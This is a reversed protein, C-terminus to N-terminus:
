WWSKMRVDEVETDVDVVVADVVVEEERTAVEVVTKVRMFWSLFDSM